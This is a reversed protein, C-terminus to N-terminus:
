TQHSLHSGIDTDASSPTFPQKSASQCNFVATFHFISGKGLESEVWLHGGMMGVLRSSITLGLGTGGFKRSTSSDAQRFAEFVLDVKDAPIGVGTDRVSFHLTVTCDRQEFLTSKLEVRGGSHTFKIANSLLNLLVQRLRFPDGVLEDPVDSAVDWTLKLGKQEANVALSVAAERVCESVSFGIPNLEMRGAEIKSLDLIDNLLARLHEASTKADNLFERQELSLESDLVLDTMGLIGNMPTRIEHSMNALFEDKFRSAEQTKALLREIDYRQAEVTKKEERLQITRKEVALELQKHMEQLRRLRWRWFVAVSAMGLTALLGRFWWTQWWAPLVEFSFAATSTAPRGSLMAQVEFRYKGHPLSPYSAIRERTDVWDDHFGALRYRFRVDAENLYTLAAFNAQFAGRKYSVAPKSEPSVFATGLKLWSLVVPTSEGSKPGADPRFHSLGLNHGIWITGDRDGFVAHSSCDNWLLGQAQSYHPFTAGDKVQVGDDSSFWLKGYSDFALASVNDSHLGQDRTFNQLQINQGAITANTLGVMEDYSIWLTGDPALIVEDLVNSKLGDAETFRKWNGDKFRLLGRDSTFWLGGNNDAVCRKFTEDQNSGPPAVREFRTSFGSILGRFIPGDTAVWLRHNSDWCVGSVGNGLLGSERGFSRVVGTRPDLRYMKGPNTGLWISHDSAETIARVPRGDLGNRSDWIRGPRDDHTFQQLASSTGVWLTGASSRFISKASGALGESPTWSEWQNTGLWRALGSGDLGIWISGERDELACAVMSVLLGRETGIREWGRGAQRMLGYRSPVLLTGNRLAYLSGLTSAEPINEVPVFRKGTRSKTLLRTSSRIWLAGSHDTLIANWIDEPVGLEKGLVSVKGHEDRCLGMGCGFWVVGEPDIHVGYVEAHAAAPTLPYLKVAPRHSQGMVWLGRNTGFYLSGHTDSTISSQSLFAVPEPLSVPIFHDGEFRALGDHTGVWITRDPAQHLSEVRNSPLGQATHFGTFLAGDYRFVGDSTAVWVYGTRDQLLSHVDLSILGQDQSYYKFAFRQASAFGPLLLAIALFIRWGTKHRAGNCQFADSPRLHM